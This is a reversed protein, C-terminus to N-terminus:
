EVLQDLVVGGNSMDCDAALLNSGGTAPASVSSSSGKPDTMSGECACFILLRPTIKESPTGSNAWTIVTGADIDGDWFGDAWGESGVVGVENLPVFYPILSRLSRSRIRSVKNLSFFVDLKKLIKALPSSSSCRGMYLM